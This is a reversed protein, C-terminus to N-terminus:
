SEHHRTRLFSSPNPRAGAPTGIQEPLVIPLSQTPREEEFPALPLIVSTPLVVQGDLGYIFAQLM